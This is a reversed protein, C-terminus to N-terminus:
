SSEAETQATVKRKGDILKIEWIIVTTHKKEEGSAKDVTSWTSLVAVVGDKKVPDEWELLVSFTELVSIRSSRAHQIGPKFQDYTYVNHNIKVVLSTDIHEEVARRALEDDPQFFLTTNLETVWQGLTQSETSM